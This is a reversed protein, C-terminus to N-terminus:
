LGKLKNTGFGFGNSNVTSRGSHGGFNRSFYSTRRRGRMTWSGRTGWNNNNRGVTRTGYMQTRPRGDRTKWSWGGPPANYVKYRYKTAVSGSAAEADKENHTIKNGYPGINARNANKTRSGSSSGSSSSSRGKGSSGRGRAEAIELDALLVILLLILGGKLQLKM